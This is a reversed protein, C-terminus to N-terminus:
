VSQQNGLPVYLTNCACLTTYIRWTTSRGYIYIYINYTYIWIAPAYLLIYEGHLLIFLYLYISIYINYVYIWIAPVYSSYYINAM